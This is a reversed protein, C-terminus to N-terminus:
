KQSVRLLTQVALNSTSIATETNVSLINILYQSEYICICMKCKCTCIILCMNLRSINSASIACWVNSIYDSLARERPSKYTMDNINRWPCRFCLPPVCDFINANGFLVEDYICIYEDTQIFTQMYHLYKIHLQSSIFKISQNQFDFQFESSM